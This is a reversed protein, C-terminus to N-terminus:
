GERMEERRAAEASAKAIAVAADEESRGGAVAVRKVEEPDIYGIEKRFKARVRQQRRHLELLDEPTSVRVCEGGKAALLNAKEKEHAALLEGVPTDIPHKSTHIEPPSTALNTEATNGTILFTGDGFESEFEVTLLKKGALRQTEIPVHYIGGVTTGDGSLFQRIVTTMGTAKEVTVSVVDGFRRFGLREFEAATAEYWERDLKAFDADTAERVELEDTFLAKNKAVMERWPGVMGGLSKDLKRVFYQKLLIVASFLVVPLVALAGLVVLVVAGARGLGGLKEWRGMLYVGGAMGVAAVLVPKLICGPPIAERVGGGKREVEESDMGEGANSEQEETM